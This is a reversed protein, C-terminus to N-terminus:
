EAAPGGRGARSPDLGGLARLSLVLRSKRGLHETRWSEVDREEGLGALTGIAESVEEPSLLSDPHPVTM